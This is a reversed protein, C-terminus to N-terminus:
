NQSIAFPMERGSTQVRFGPPRSIAATTLLRSQGPNSPRHDRLIDDARRYDPHGSLQDVARHAFCTQGSSTGFRYARSLRRAQSRGRRGQKELTFPGAAGWAFTTEARCDARRAARIRRSRCRAARAANLSAAYNILLLAPRASSRAFAQTDRPNLPAVVRSCSRARSSTFTPITGATGRLCFTSRKLAVYHRFAEPPRPSPGPCLPQPVSM